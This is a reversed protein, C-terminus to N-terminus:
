EKTQVEQRDRAADWRAKIEKAVRETFIADRVVDDTMQIKSLDIDLTFDDMAKEWALWFIPRASIGTRPLQAPTAACSKGPKKFFSKLKEFTRTLPAYRSWLPPLRMAIRSVFYVKAM